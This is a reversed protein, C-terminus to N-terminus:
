RGKRKPAFTLPLALDRIRQNMATQEGADSVTNRIERKVLAIVEDRENSFASYLVINPPIYVGKTQANISKIWYYNTTELDELAKYVGLVRTSESAICRQYESYTIM